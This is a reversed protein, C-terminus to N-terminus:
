NKTQSIKRKLVLNKKALTTAGGATSKDIIKYVM